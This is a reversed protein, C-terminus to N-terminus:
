NLLEVKLAILTNNQTDHVTCVFYTIYVIALAIQYSRIASSSSINLIINKCNALENCIPCNYDTCQHNIHKIIFLASNLLVIIVTLAVIISIIKNTVRKM